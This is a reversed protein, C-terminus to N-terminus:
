LGMKKIESISSKEGKDKLEGGTSFREYLEKIFAIGIREAEKKDEIDTIEISPQINGYQTTPITARFEMKSIKM